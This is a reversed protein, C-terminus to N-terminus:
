NPTNPVVTHYGTLGSTSATATYGTTILDAALITLSKIDEQAKYKQITLSLETNYESNSLGVGVIRDISSFDNATIPQGRRIKDKLTQIEIHITCLNEVNNKDHHIDRAERTIINIFICLLAGWILNCFGTLITGIIGLSELPIFIQIIFPLSFFLLIPIGWLSVKWDKKFAAKIDKMFRISDLILCTFIIAAVYIFIDKIRNKIM